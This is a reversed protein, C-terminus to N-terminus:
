KTAAIFTLVVSTIASVIELFSMEGFLFSKSNRPVIIVDGREININEGTEITGDLHRVILKNPNGDVTNGGSMSVYDFPSYGPFYNFGGPRQVFGNVSVGRENLIDIVDGPKLITQDFKDPPVNIIQQNGNKTRTINVNQLDANKSFKTQRILFNMLNENEQIIDYGAGSIAGRIVIGENNINGFPVHIRDGELFCPNNSLDGNKKYKLYNIKETNGNSRIIEIDFEKALQHFGDARKIIEDLRTVPNVVYFEPTSVAGSIQIAFDRIGLLTVEIKANKYTEKSIKEIKELAKELCSKGLDIVGVTPIMIDGAPNIKLTFSLNEISSINIGIVDGPGIIYTKPDIRKELAFYQMDPQQVMLQSSQEKTQIEDATQVRRGFTQSFLINGCILVIFLTRYIIRM